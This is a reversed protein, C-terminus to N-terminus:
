NKLIKTKYIHRIDEMLNMYFELNNLVALRRGLAENLKFLHHLYARSYSKLEPLNSNPNIPTFDNKFNSNNINITSYFSKSVQGDPLRTPFRGTRCAPQFGARGAPPNSIKQFLRGHRGERTPIVCDFMDWGFSACQCIDAPTGIGLAFRLSNEPILRAISKLVAEQLNGKADIPSGGFGYGDFGIKVLKNLCYKRLDLYPGGQIVGFFLPLNNTIGRAKIQKGYEVRCRKAWAITRGVAIKLEKKSFNNPPCDDLCVMMDVGLDFQIQMSKEPTMKQLSGGWISKFEAGEDTIKGMKPHSHILSFIQFGGSDALLPGPWGMFKHIGGIIKIIELGPQLYLHYANVVMAGLGINNLDTGSLTKIFGRTADPMFFPTTIKGHKTNITLSRGNNKKNQKFKNIM